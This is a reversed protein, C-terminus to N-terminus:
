YMTLEEAINSQNVDDDVRSDEDDERRIEMIMAGEVIGGGKSM